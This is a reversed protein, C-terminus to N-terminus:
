PPMVVSRLVEHDIIPLPILHPPTGSVRIASWYALFLANSVVIEEYRLAAALQRALSNGGVDHRPMSETLLVNRRGETYLEQRASTVEDDPAQAVSGDPMRVPPQKSMSVNQMWTWREPACCVVNVYDEGMPTALLQAYHEWRGSVGGTMSGVRVPAIRLLGSLYGLALMGIPSSDTAALYRIFRRAM